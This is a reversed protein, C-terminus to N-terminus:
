RSSHMSSQHLAHMVSGAAPRALACRRLAGWGHRHLRLRGGGRGLSAKGQLHPGPQGHSRCPLAPQLVDSVERAPCSPARCPSAGRSGHSSAVCSGWSGCGASGPQVCGPPRAASSAAASPAAMWSCSLLTAARSPQHQRCSSELTASAWALRQAPQQRHATIGCNSELASGACQQCCCCGRYRRLRGASRAPPSQDQILAPTSLAAQQGPTM